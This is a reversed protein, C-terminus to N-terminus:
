PSLAEWVADAPTGKAAAGAEALAWARFAEVKPLGALDPPVVLHYGFTTDEWASPAFPRVLRGAALDAEVTPGSVLAVGHGEIAAQIALSGISFSMGRTADVGEVGAAKLWMPWTAVRGDDTADGSHLLTHHALDAPTKLPQPGELLSPACAPFATDSMLPESELGPYQGPGYRIALDVQESRFDVMRDTADVRIDIAPNQARFRELRPLLWRAGFTPPVSVTLITDDAKRRMEHAAEALRDFGDRLFPLAAEGRETLALSRTMRRFLKVQCHDELQRVQQSIAAPTVHLEAAAKTFSLHRAAAEFARLSNLPPLKRDM